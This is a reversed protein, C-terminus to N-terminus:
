THGLLFSVASMFRFTGMSPFNCKSYVRVSGPLSDITIMEKSEVTVRSNPLNCRLTTLLLSEQTVLVMLTNWAATDIVRPM